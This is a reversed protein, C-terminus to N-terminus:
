WIMPSYERLTFKFTASQRCLMKQERTAAIFRCPALPGYGERRAAEEHAKISDSDNQLLAQLYEINFEGLNRLILHAQHGRARQECRASTLIYKQLLFSLYNSFIRDSTATVGFFWSGM